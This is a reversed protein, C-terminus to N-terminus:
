LIKNAIYEDKYLRKTEKNIVLKKYKIKTWPSVAILQEDDILNQKKAENYLQTGYYLELEALNYSDINYEKVFDNILPSYDINEEWPFGYIFITQVKLKYRQILRIKEKFIEFTGPKGTKNFFEETPICDINLAIASKSKNCGAYSNLINETIYIFNNHLVYATAKNETIFDLTECWLKENKFPSDDIFFFGKAGKSIYYKIDEKVKEISKERYPPSNDFKCYICKEPCNKTITLVVKKGTFEVPELLDLDKMIYSSFNTKNKTYWYPTQELYAKKDTAELLEKFPIEGEGLCIADVYDIFKEKMVEAYMGGLIILSNPSRKRIKQFIKINRNHDNHLIVMSIAIIDYNKKFEFFWPMYDFIKMFATTHKKCYSKITLLGHNKFFNDFNILKFVIKFFLSLGNKYLNGIMLVKM